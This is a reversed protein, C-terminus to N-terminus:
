FVEKATGDSKEREQKRCHSGADNLLRWRAILVNMAHSRVTGSIGPLAQEWSRRLLAALVNRGHGPPALTLTKIAESQCIMFRGITRILGPDNIESLIAALNVAAQTGGFTGPDIWAQLRKLSDALDTESLAEDKGRCKCSTASRNKLPGPGM